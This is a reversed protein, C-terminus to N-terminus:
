GNRNSEILDIEEPALGYLKYVLEDIQKEYDKVRAQKESNVPYDSSNTITLIKDIIEVFPKQEDESIKKIPIESLPKQMLELINGKRKGKNYLWLYCLKSNLISLIFKLNFEGNKKYIFCVDQSAFWPSENYAFKNIKSRYPAVIKSDTFYEENKPNFLVFYNGNKLWRKVFGSAIKNKLFNSKLKTLLVEYKGFHSKLEASLNIPEGEDKMYLIWQDNKLNCYYKGIDSNKFYPKVYKSYDSKNLSLKELEDNSLIFIGDGKKAKLEKDVIFHRNSVKDARSVLGM